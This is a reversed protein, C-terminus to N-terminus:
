RIGQRSNLVKTEPFENFRATFVVYLGQLPDKADGGPRSEVHDRDERGLDRALDKQLQIPHIQDTAARDTPRPPGHDAVICLNPLGLDQFQIWGLTRQQNVVLVPVLVLVPVIVLAFPFFGVFM